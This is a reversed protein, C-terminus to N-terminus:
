RYLVSVRDLSNQETVKLYADTSSIRKHALHRQADALTGVELIRKASIKRLNHFSFGYRLNTRNTLWIRTFLNGTKPNSFIHGSDINMAKFTKYTAKSLQTKHSAVKTKKVSSVCEYRDAVENYTIDNAKLNLLDSARLGTDLGILIALTEYKYKDEKFRELADQKIVEYNEKTEIREIAKMKFYNKNEVFTVCETTM